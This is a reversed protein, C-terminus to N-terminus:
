ILKIILYFYCRFYSHRMIGHKHFFAIRRLLASMLQFCYRAAGAHRKLSYFHGRGALVILHHSLAPHDIHEHFVKQLDKEGGGAATATLTQHLGIAAM